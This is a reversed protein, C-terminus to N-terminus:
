PPECCICSSVIALCIRRNGHRHRAAGLCRRHALVDRCSGLCQRGIAAVGRELCEAVPVEELMEVIEVAARGRERQEPRLAPGQGGRPREAAQHRLRIEPVAFERRVADDGADAALGCTSPDHLHDDAVEAVPMQDDVAGPDACRDHRGVGDKRSPRGCHWASQSQRLDVDVPLLGPGEEGLAVDGFRAGPAQEDSPQRDHRLDETGGLRGNREGDLVGGGRATRVASRATGPREGGTPM